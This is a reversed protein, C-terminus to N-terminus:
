RTRLQTRRRDTDRDARESTREHSGALSRTPPPPGTVPTSKSTSSHQSMPRKKNPRKDKVMIMNTQRLNPTSQNARNSESRVRTGSARRDMRETQRDTPQDNTTRAAQAQAPARTHERQESRERRSGHRIHTHAIAHRITEERKEAKVHARGSVYVIKL